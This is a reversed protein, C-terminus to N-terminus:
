LGHWQVGGALQDGDDCTRKRTPTAILTEDDAVRGIMRGRGSAVRLPHHAVAAAGPSEVRTWGPTSESM